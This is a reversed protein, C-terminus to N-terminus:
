NCNKLAAAEGAGGSIQLSVCLGEKAHADVKMFVSLTEWGARFFQVEYPGERVGRVKFGGKDDTVASAIKKQKARMQVFTLSDDNWVQPNDYVEIQTGPIPAGTWDTVRGLLCKAPGDYRLIEHEERASCATILFLCLLTARLFHM